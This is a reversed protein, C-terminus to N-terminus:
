QNCPYFLCKLAFDGLGLAALRLWLLQVPARLSFLPPFVKGFTRLKGIYCQLSALVSLVRQAKADKRGQTLDAMRGGEGPRGGESFSRRVPPRAPLGGNPPFETKTGHGVSAKQAKGM